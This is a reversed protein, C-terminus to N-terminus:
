SGQLIQVGWNCPEVTCSDMWVKVTYTINPYLINTMIPQDDPEHDADIRWSAELDLDLDSCDNDCAGVIMYGGESPVVFEFSTMQGQDLAGLERYYAQIGRSRAQAVVDDLQRVVAAEQASVAPAFAITWSTAIVFTLRDIPRM